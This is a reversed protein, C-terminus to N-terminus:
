CGRKRKRHSRMWSLMDRGFFPQVRRLNRAAEEAIDQATTSSSSSTTTTTEQDSDDQQTDRLRPPPPPPVHRQFAAQRRHLTAHPDPMRYSNPYHDKVRSSTPTGTRDKGQRILGRLEETYNWPYNAPEVKLGARKWYDDIIMQNLDRRLFSQHQRSADHQDDGFEPPGTGADNLGTNYVLSDTVLSESFHNVRSLNRRPVPKIDIVDLYERVVVHKPSEEDEDDEDDGGHLSDYDDSRTHLMHEVTFTDRVGDATVIQRARAGEYSLGKRLIENLSTNRERELYEILICVQYEARDRSQSRHLIGGLSEDPLVEWVVIPSKIKKRYVERGRGDLVVSGDSRQLPRNRDKHLMWEKHLGKLEM